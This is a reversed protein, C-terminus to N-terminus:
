ISQRRRALWERPPTRRDALSGIRNAIEESRREAKAQRRPGIWESLDSLDFRRCIIRETSRYGYPGDWVFERGHRQAGRIVLLAAKPADRGSRCVGAVTKRGILYGANPRHPPFADEHGM